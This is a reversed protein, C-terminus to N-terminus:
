VYSDILSYQRASSHIPTETVDEDSLTSADVYRASEETDQQQDSASQDSVDVDVLQLGEEAFMERLRLVSQDLAEKVSTHQVTFVVHAQEQAVSVKVSLPGLEPPDLQIEAEKVGKSSMWMVREAVAEGWQGRQVPTSITLPTTTPLSAPQSTLSLGAIPTDVSNVTAQAATAMASGTNMSSMLLGNNDKLFSPNDALMKELTLTESTKVTSLIDAVPAASLSQNLTKALETVLAPKVGQNTVAPIVHAEQSVSAETPIDAMTAPTALIVNPITKNLSTENVASEDVSQTDISPTEVMQTISASNVVDTSLVIANADSEIGIDNEIATVPADTTVTTTIQHDSHDVNHSSSTVKNDTNESPNIAEKGPSDHRSTAAQKDIVHSSKEHEKELASTKKVQNGGQEVDNMTSKFSSSSDDRHSPDHEKTSARQTSLQRSKSINLMNIEPSFFSQGSM